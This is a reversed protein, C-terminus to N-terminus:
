KVMEKLPSFARQRRYGYGVRQVRAMTEGRGHPFRDVLSFGMGFHCVCYIPCFRKKM